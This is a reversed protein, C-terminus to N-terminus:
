RVTTISEPQSARVEESRAWTRSRVTRWIVGNIEPFGTLPDLLGNESVGVILSHENIELAYSNNVGPLAGLDTVKGNRWEFGHSVFCDTLCNPSYPDAVATDATGVATGRNNVIRSLPPNGDNFASSPGGFTGMDVLKYQYHRGRHDRDQQASVQIPIVLAVFIAAACSYNLLKSKM